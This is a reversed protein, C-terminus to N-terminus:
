SSSCGRSPRPATAGAGGALDPAPPSRDRRDVGPRAHGRAGARGEGRPRRARRSRRDVRDDVPLRAVAGPGPDRVGQRRYAARVAGEGAHRGVDARRQSWAARSGRADPPSERRHLARGEGDPQVHEGQQRRRGGRGGRHFLERVGHRRHAVRPRLSPPSAGDGPLQVEAPRERGPPQPHGRLWRRVLPEQAPRPRRRAPRANGQPAADRRGRVLLARRAPQRRARPRRRSRLCLDLPYPATLGPLVDKNPLATSASGFAGTRLAVDSFGFTSDIRVAEDARRDRLYPTVRLGLTNVQRRGAAALAIAQLISTKATGNEGILMTWKRPKGGPGVFDLEFNKLLKLNEIRLRQIYM